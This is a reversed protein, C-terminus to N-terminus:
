VYKELTKKMEQKILERLSTPSIVVVHSGFSM